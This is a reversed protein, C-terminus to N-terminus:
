GKGCGLGVVAYPALDIWLPAQEQDLQISGTSDGLTRMVFPERMGQVTVRQNIDTLNAVLTCQEDGARVSLAAVRLPQSMTVPLVQSGAFPALAAFLHYIPFLMGPQSPFLNPLECGQEVEMIGRWGTTEYYTLSAVGTQALNSLSGLTWAAAFGTPQRADVADPLTGPEPEAQPGTADPNFRPRLTIPSVSIPLDGSFARASAVTVAQATMNEVLSLMDFAHVQPNISYTVFDLAEVPPHTRNLHTFYLDTGGGVPVGPALAELVPRARAVLAAPTVAEDRSFLLWRAVQPQVENFATSLAALESSAAQGVFLAVELAANIATADEKAHALRTGIGRQSLDLDVRLHGLELTRLAEAQRESLRQGHSAVGLGIAPLKAVPADGVAVIVPQMEADSTGAPLQKSLRIHIAQRVATGAEVTVPYPITLPTSYTKFSADTWNRQDETEFIDGEFRVEAQLDPVVEHTIARLDFFPQHPSILTPFQSASQSGDSHELICAAGACSAPHLVCFGIRNRRFTTDARGDMTFSISGDKNGAITGEWTFGIDNQKHVATFTISFSSGHDDIVLDRLTIPVTGWNHDRVAVYIRQIIEVGNVRLQRLDGNSFLLSIPGARLPTTAPYAPVAIPTHLTTM